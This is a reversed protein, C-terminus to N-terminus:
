MKNCKQHTKNSTSTISHIGSTAKPWMWLSCEKSLDTHLCDASDVVKRLVLNLLHAIYTEVRRLQIVQYIASKGWAALIALDEDSPCVDIPLVQEKHKSQVLTQTKFRTFVKVKYVTWTALLYAYLSGNHQQPRHATVRCIVLCPNLLLNWGMQPPCVSESAPSTSTKIQIHSM